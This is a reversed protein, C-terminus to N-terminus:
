LIKNHKKSPSEAISFTNIVSANTTLMLNSINNDISIPNIDNEILFDNPLNKKFYFEPTIPSNLLM